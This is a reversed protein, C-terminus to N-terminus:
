TKSLRFFNAELIPIKVIIKRSQHILKQLFYRLIKLLSVGFLTPFVM